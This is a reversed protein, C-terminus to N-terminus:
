YQAGKTFDDHAQAFTEKRRLISALEMESLKLPDIGEWDVVLQLLAINALNEIDPLRQLSAESKTANILKYLRLFRESNASSM